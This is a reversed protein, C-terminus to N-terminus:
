PLRIHDLRARLVKKDLKGVSTKPIEDVVVVEDPLWWKAFRPALFDRVEEATVPAAGAVLVIAAVPREDWKESHCGVVAADAVAPHALIAGELEVSSIWEGGSKVLDKARDVIKFYGDQEMWAMDGTRLWGDHFRQETFEPNEYYGSAIWPGRVELEGVSEGDWPQETGDDAVIRADLGPLVTGTREQVDLRAAADLGRHRRRPRSACALPGTETMGWVQLYDIGLDQYAEILARPSASGGVFVTRLASHDVHGEQLLPLLEKWITPVGAALTVREDALAAGLAEPSTDSGHFILEAGTFPASYPLGWGFAHFMPVVPLVRDHESIGISDVMCTAMSHLWMGRHTSLVGKPMGTTGSTYCLGCAAQEEVDPLDDLSLPDAKGLMEEYDHLPDLGADPGDGWRVYGEVTELQPAVEALSETLVGDVFILRDAAHNTIYAVQEGHLRINVTHLVAGLLPAAWYLEFHRHSNFGFSAVRDGPGIGLDGLVRCLRLIREALEGYSHRVVVRDGGALTGSITVVEGDPHVTRMREFISRLTLPTPQMLGPITM